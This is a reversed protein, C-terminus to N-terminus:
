FLCITAIVRVGDYRPQMKHRDTLQYFLLLRMESWNKLKIKWFIENLTLSMEFDQSDFPNLSTATFDELKGDRTLKKFIPFCNAFQNSSSHRRQENGRKRSKKAHIVRFLFIYVCCISFLPYFQASSFFASVNM